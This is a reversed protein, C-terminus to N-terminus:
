RGPTSAAGWWTVGDFTMIETGQGTREDIRILQGATTLGYLTGWAATLGFVEDFGIPGILTAAGTEGDIIVLDDDADGEGRSSMFITNDKNVVCDGSSRFSGGMAGVRTTTGDSADVTWVESGATLVIRGSLDIAMGTPQGSFGDLGGIDIWRDNRADYRYLTDRSVGYLTGDPHTDMDTLFPVDQRPEIQMLFPDIAYMRQATQAFFRCDIGDNVLGSCDNDVTDCRETLGPRRGPDGDDCDDGGCVMAYAGDDDEDIYCPLGLDSHDPVDPAVDSGVDGGGDIPDSGDAADNDVDNAADRGADDASTDDGADNVPRLGGDAADADDTTGPSADDSCGVLLLLFLPALCSRTM